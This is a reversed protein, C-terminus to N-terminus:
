EDENGALLSSLDDIEAVSQSSHFGDNTALAEMDPDDAMDPEIRAARWLALAALLTSVQRHTLYVSLGMNMKIHIISDDSM